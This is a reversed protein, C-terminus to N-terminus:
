LIKLELILLWFGKCKVCSFINNYFIKIWNCFNEAFGFKHLVAFMYHQVVIDFAKVQDLKLLFAELEDLETVDM